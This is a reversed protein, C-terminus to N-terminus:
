PYTQQLSPSVSAFQYEFHATKCVGASHVGCLAGGLAHQALNNPAIYRCADLGYLADHLAAIFDGLLGASNAHGPTRPVTVFTGGGYEFLNNSTWKIHTIRVLRDEM